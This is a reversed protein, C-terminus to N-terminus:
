ELLPSRHLSTFIDLLVCVIYKDYFFPFLVHYMWSKNSLRPYYRQHAHDYHAHYCSLSLAGTSVNYLLEALVNLRARPANRSTELLVLTIQRSGALPLHCFHLLPHMLEAFRALVVDEARSDFGASAPDDFAELIMLALKVRLALYFISVCFPCCLYGIGCHKLRINIRTKPKFYNSYM